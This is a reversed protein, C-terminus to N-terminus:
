QVEKTARSSRRRRRAEFLGAVLAALAWRGASSESPRPGVECACGGGGTALGFVGRTPGGGGAGTSGTSTAGTAGTSTTTPMSGGAGTSTTTSPVVVACEGTADVCAQGDPCAVGACPCNGCAGTVPDCCSGNTCSTATCLNKVCAPPSQARDCVQDAACAPSCDAVCAGDDCVKGMPCVVEACSPVCVHDTFTANPKCEQGMPCTDPLCPGDICAGMSCAKGCGQCPLNWCNDAVCTGAKPGFSTCVTGTGCTVGSCPDQCGDQGKCTCVPPTICNALVTGAPACIVKSNADKVTKVTCDGCAALPDTVCYGGPLSQGTQSSTVQDCKQGPPCPFEGVGCPQACQCTGGSTKVCENGSGCLPPAGPGNPNDIVGDCDNDNCDCTEPIATQSGLCTFTGNVCAYAGQQCTGGMTGCPDGISAAPPPTPNATGAITDPGTGDMPGGEDIKGDCDNDIGDCLEASPGIGGVCTTGGLGDCQLVGKQCPPFDRKGPFLLPDYVIDCAGGTPIGNDITGDCDNDKGDCTEPSPPVDGVCDLVGAMSCVLTGSTCEGTDTGCVAGVMPLPGDDVAGDCDNDIGDCTETGPTKPNQCIWGTLGSCALSGNNCPPSALTGNDFCNGGPPPCWSLNKFTCCNGPEAWCGNQGQAPADALPAEDVFGNCNDDVGNCVEPQPQAGGQCVLAGNVCATLGPTCPAQNSGCMQGVGAVGNDVIGDCNNDLGDCVEVGPGTGGVCVTAGNTCATAGMTCISNPGYNLGAPSGVPVCPISGVGDDIIGNCNDDVNNCTEAKPANNCANFGGGPACAGIAVVQPAKCTITGACWPALPDVTGCPIAAINDDASGDCDNDCGDCVEPSISCANPCIGGEDILGDCNDDQANCTEPIPCHLPSGCKTIGEDVMSVCNNDVNDCKEGPDYCLWALPDAQQAPTICPLKTLDGQPLAPTITAQYTNLCATRQAPTAAACCAAAVPQVNCYHTFGEDTCGNCNNDTNDCTEPKISGGIINSLALALQQENTAFYSTGTGGAAAIQDTNVQSGGAFNIVYTKVNWTLGNKTFGAFLAASAAVADAQLDCTEDGDTVLIVNVSRCAREGNAVSTLPSTFTVGGGPITWSSSYYRYMDRLIGNLPTNQSAFLETSGTCDNDVWSILQAVNSASPPVTTDNLMPVLINAGARTPSGAVPSPEPGCGAIGSNGPLDAYTCTGYCAAGCASMKEAFSALGFNAQGTYAMFTNKVACKGHGIRTNSYGCSNATAIGTGMSGSTDFAVMFYPKAPAPWKSPDPLLCEPAEAALVPRPALSGVTVTAGALLALLSRPLKSKRPATDNM